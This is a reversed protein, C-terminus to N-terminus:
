KKMDKEMKEAAEAKKENMASKSAKKNVGLKEDAAKIKAKYAASSAADLERKVVLADKGEAAAAKAKAANEKKEAALEAKAQSKSASYEKRAAKVEAKKAKEADSMAVRGQVIPDTSTTAAQVAYPSSLLALTALINIIKSMKNGKLKLLHV